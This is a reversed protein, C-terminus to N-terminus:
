PTPAPPQDDLTYDGAPTTPYTSTPAGPPPPTSGYAPPVAPNSTRNGMAKFDPMVEGSSRFLMFAAVTQVLVLLLFLYGTFRLGASYGPGSPSDYTFGRLLCILLGLLSSAAAILHLGVPLQPVSGPAFIRAAAAATAVLVLLVGLFGYSHWANVSASVHFGGVGATVGYFPFFSLLLALVGAGLVVQDMRNLNKLDDVAPM